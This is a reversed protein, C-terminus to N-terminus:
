KRKLGVPVICGQPITQQKTLKLKPAFPLQSISPNELNKKKM